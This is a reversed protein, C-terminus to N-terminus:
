SSGRTDSTIKGSQGRATFPNLLPLQGALGDRQVKREIARATEADAVLTFRYSLSRRILARTLGDLSLRGHAADEIQVQTLTPLVLRDFVYVCFQDGSRRGSAHSDLRSRLGRLGRRTVEGSGGAAADIGRGSMGACILQGGHWVTYVGISGNPVAPNPWDAFRYLRGTFLEDLESQTGSTM